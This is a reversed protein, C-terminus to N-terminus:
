GSSHDDVRVRDFEWSFEDCLARVHSEWTPETKSRGGLFADVSLYRVRHPSRCIIRHLTHPPIRVVDGPGVPYQQPPQGIELVGAGELLYFIQEMDHHVHPPPAEGAELIVIFVESTEADARDMVLDNTHTPFRYRVTDTSSFVYRTM